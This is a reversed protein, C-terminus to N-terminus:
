GASKVNCIVEALPRNPVICRGERAEPVLWLSVGGGVLLRRKNLAVHTTHVYGGGKGKSERGLGGQALIWGAVMASVIVEM